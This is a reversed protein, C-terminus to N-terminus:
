RKDEKGVRLTGVDERGITMRERDPVSPRRPAPPEADEPELASSGHVRPEGHIAYTHARVKALWDACAPCTPNEDNYMAANMPVPRINCITGGNPNSRHTARSSPIFTAKPDPFGRAPEHGTPPPPAKPTPM